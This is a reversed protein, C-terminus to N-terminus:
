RTLTEGATAFQELSIQYCSTNGNGTFLAQSNPAFCLTKVQTDLEVKGQLRGSLADWLRVAQDNGGSALWRGDPSFAVCTVADEHGALEAVLKETTVDWLCISPVLSATALLIGEPHFALHRAGGPLRAVCCKRAVDWIHVAGNSGSTALWDIGGVALRNETPGFALATIACAEVAEPLILIPKHLGTDWLWVDCGLASASALVPTRPAYALATIPLPPGEWAEQRQGTAAEWFLIQGEGGAAIQDGGPSFAVSWLQSSEALDLV